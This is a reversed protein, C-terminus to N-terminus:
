VHAAEAEFRTMRAQRDEPSPTHLSQTVADPDFPHYDDKLEELLKHYEFHFTAGLLLALQRFQERAAPDLGPEGALQDVIESQRHKTKGCSEPAVM